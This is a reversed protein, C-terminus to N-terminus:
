ESDVESDDEKKGIIRNALSKIDTINKSVINTVGMQLISGFMQKFPNHSSGIVLKKSVYGAVLSLSTDLLTGKFDPLDTIEDLTNKILNVPKLSEYTLQFQARLLAEEEAQKIELLLISERLEDLPSIKKM